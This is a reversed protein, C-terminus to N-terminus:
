KREVVPTSPARLDIATVGAIRDGLSALIPQILRRKRDLDDEDGFRIRIGGALTAELQGYKDHRFNKLRGGSEALTHADRQLQALEPDHLFRGPAADSLSRPLYVVGAPACGRELVRGASDITLAVGDPGQACGDPKRETVDIRVSAPLGRHVRANLVYPIAEIRREVAHTDLLWVNSHTGIAARAAVASRAVRTVGTVELHKVQFVSSNAFVWVGYAAAFVLLLGLVWFTRIRTQLTPRSRRVIRKPKRKVCWSVHSRKLWVTTNSM